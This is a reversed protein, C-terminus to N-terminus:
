LGDGKEAYMNSDIWFKVAAKDVGSGSFTDIGVRLLYPLM